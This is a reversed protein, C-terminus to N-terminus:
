VSVKVTLKELIEFIKSPFTTARLTKLDVAALTLTAGFVKGSLKVMPKFLSSDDLEDRAIFQELVLRKQTLEIQRTYIYIEDEFKVPRWYHAHLEAIVLGAGEAMMVAYPIQHARLYNVRSREIYRLYNPHYVVGMSDCDEFEVRVKAKHLRPDM